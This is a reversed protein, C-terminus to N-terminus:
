PVNDFTIGASNRVTTFSRDLYFADQIEIPEGDLNLVWCGNSNERWIPRTFTGKGVSIHFHNGTAPADNGERMMPVGRTFKQGVSLTGLDDDNPHMVMMVLYDEGCPMKVRSTSQLWITNTGGGNVGYIHKIEMEDCPCYMYDRGSDSCGEDIPYDHYNAAPDSYYYHTNKNNSERYFANQTINMHKCPYVAYNESYENGGTEEDDGSGENGGTGGELLVPLWDQSYDTLGGNYFYVNGQANVDKGSGSGDNNQNATLYRGNYLLKIKIYDSNEIEEIKIYSTSSKTYVHANYNKVNATTSSGTFLDLVLSTNGKCQLYKNSGEEKYIWQQCIDTNSSEWLCVNALSAPSYGYVNLSRNGDARNVFRYTAGNILGM